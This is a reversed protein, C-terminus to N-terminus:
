MCHGAAILSDYYSEECGPRMISGCAGCEDYGATTWLQSRTAPMLPLTM